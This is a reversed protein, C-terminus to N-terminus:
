VRQDRLKGMQQLLECGEGRSVGPVLKMPGRTLLPNVTQCTLGRAIMEEANADEALASYAVTHVGAFSLAAICMLCPELTVYIALDRKEDDSMASIRRAADRLAVMEGHLTMDGTREYLNHTLALTEDRWMLLAAVGAGGDAIVRRAEDLALRMRVEDEPTPTCISM